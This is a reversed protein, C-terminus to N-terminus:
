QLRIWEMGSSWLPAPQPHSSRKCDTGSVSCRQLLSAMRMNKLGGNCAGTCPFVYLVNMSWNVHKSLEVRRSWSGQLVHRCARLIDWSTESNEQVENMMTYLKNKISLSMHCTIRLTEMGCWRLIKKTDTGTMRVFRHRAGLCVGSLKLASKKEGLHTAMLLSFWGMAGLVKVSVSPMNSKYDKINSESECVCVVCCSLLICDTSYIPTLTQASQAPFHMALPLWM